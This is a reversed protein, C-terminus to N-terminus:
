TAGSSRSPPRNVVNSGNWPFCPGSRRARASVAIPFDDYSCWLSPSQMSGKHRPIVIATYSWGGNGSMASESLRSRLATPISSSSVLTGYSSANSGADRTPITM